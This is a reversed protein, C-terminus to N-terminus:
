RVIGLRSSSIFQRLSDVAESTKSLEELAAIAEKMILGDRYIIRYAQRLADITDKDFSNRRLGERNLGSPKAINGSVLVYPPVDKVLISAAASFSYSGLHCFQRVLTFGGLTVFDGVTVHGALSANNAFVTNSGVLCDHAIHVYAMIWNNDGVITRGGGNATGRNISVYERFTNGSGIHLVSDTEGHYKKDQPDTGISSFPLFRNDKGITTPGKIIVHDGVETNADISVNAGIVSYAGVKVDSHIDSDPHIVATPHLM